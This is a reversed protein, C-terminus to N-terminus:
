HLPKSIFIASGAEEQLTYREFATAEYIRIAQHNKDMVEFTLKCCGLKSAKVEVAKLLRQGVRKGRPAQLVVLYAPSINQLLDWVLKLRLNLTHSKNHRIRNQRPLPLWNRSVRIKEFRISCQLRLVALTLPTYRPFAGAHPILLLKQLLAIARDSEGSGAAIRTLMEIPGPGLVADKEMPNVYVRRQALALAAAKDGLKM